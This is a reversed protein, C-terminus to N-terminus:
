PPKNEDLRQQLVTYIALVLIGAGVVAAVPHLFLSLLLFVVAFLALFLVLLALGLLMIAATRLIIAIVDWIFEFVENLFDVLATRLRSAM